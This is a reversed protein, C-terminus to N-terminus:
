EEAELTITGTDRYEGEKSLHRHTGTFTGDEFSGSFQFTAKRDESDNVVEGELTGATLSGQATGAYVHPGDEWDFHFAVAWEADGKPTFIAKLDGAQDGDSRTWVFGGELTIDDGALAAATPLACFALAVLLLYHRKM